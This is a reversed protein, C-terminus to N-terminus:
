FATNEWAEIGCSPRVHEGNIPKIQSVTGRSVAGMQHRYFVIHAKEFMVNGEQHQFAVLKWLM